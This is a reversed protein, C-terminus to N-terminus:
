QLSQSVAAGATFVIFTKLKQTVRNQAKDDGIREIM